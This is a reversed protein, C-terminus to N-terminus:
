APGKAKEERLFRAFAEEIDSEVRLVDGPADGGTLFRYRKHVTRGAFQETLSRNALTTKTFVLVGSTERDLRHCIQWREDPFREGRSACIAGTCTARSTASTTRVRPSGPTRTCPMLVRGPLGVMKPMQSPLGTM